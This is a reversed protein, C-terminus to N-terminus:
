CLRLTKFTHLLAKLLLHVWGKSYFTGLLQAVNFIQLSSRVSKELAKSFKKPHSVPNEDTGCM